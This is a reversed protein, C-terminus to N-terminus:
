EQEDKKKKKKKKKDKAHANLSEQQFVQGGTMDGPLTTAYAAGGSSLGKEIIDELSKKFDPNGKARRALEAVLVSKRVVRQKQHYKHKIAAIAERKEPRSGAGERAEALEQKLSERRQLDRREKNKRGGRATEEKQAVQVQIQAEKEAEKGPGVHHRQERQEEIEPKFKLRRKGSGPGGKCFLDLDEQVGEYYENFDPHDPNLVQTVIIQNVKTPNGIERDVNIEFSKILDPEDSRIVVRDESDETPIVVDEFSANLSKCIQAYTNTNVPDRTLAVGTVFAKDIVNDRLPNRKLTYGEVSFQVMGPKHKLENYYAVSAPHNKWVKGKIWLGEKTIKAKDIVGLRAQSRPIGLKEYEKGHDDNLYGKGVDVATLDFNQRMIENDLDQDDTSALGEIEWYDETEAKCINIKDTSFKFEKKLRSDM